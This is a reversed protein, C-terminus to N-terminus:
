HSIGFGEFVDLVAAFDFCGYHEDITLAARLKVGVFTPAIGSLVKRIRKDGQLQVRTREVLASQVLM